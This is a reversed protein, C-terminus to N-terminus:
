IIMMISIELLYSIHNLVLVELDIPVIDFINDILITQNELRAGKFIINEAHLDSVGLMSLVCAMKKLKNLLYDKKEDPIKLGEIFRLASINDKCGLQSLTPGEIKEWISFGRLILLIMFQYFIIVTM